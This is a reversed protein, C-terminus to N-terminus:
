QRDRGLVGFETASIPVAKFSIPDPDGTGYRWNNAVGWLLKNYDEFTSSGDCWTVAAFVPKSPDYLNAGGHPRLTSAAFVRTQRILGKKSPFAVSALQQSRWQEPGRQGDKTWYEPDAYFVDSLDFDGPRPLDFNKAPTRENAPSQAAVVMALQPRPSFAAYYFSPNDFWGGAFEAHDIKVWQYPAGLSPNVYVPPWLVPVSDRASLAYAQVSQGLQRSNNLDVLRLAKQRAASFSPLALALLLALIGIAILIEIITWGGCCNQACSRISRKVPRGPEHLRMPTIICQFQVRLFAHFEIFHGRHCHSKHARRADGVSSISAGQM